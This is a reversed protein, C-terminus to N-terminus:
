SRKKIDRHDLFVQCSKEQLFQLVKISVAVSRHKGGTCGVAITLHNKGRNIYHPILFELFSKIKELLETGEEGQFIFAQVDPDRGDKEQLAPEYFPNPLIRTDFLLDTDLPIGYKYGFSLLNVIMSFEGGETLSFLRKIEEKLRVKAMDGTNILKDAMGKIDQLKERERTIGELLRGTPAEPHKRYHESFRRVLINDPADLFLIYYEYQYDRIAPLAKMLDKAFNEGSDDCAIAVRDFGSSSCLQAFTPILAPPLNDVWFYDMDELTKIATTKGAGSMGTIIIFKRNKM